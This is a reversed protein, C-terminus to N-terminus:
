FITVSLELIPWVTLRRECVKRKELQVVAKNYSIVAIM